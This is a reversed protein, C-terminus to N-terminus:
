DTITIRRAIFMPVKDGDEDDGWERQPALRVSLVATDAGDLAILARAGHLSTGDLWVSTRASLLAVADMGALQVAQKTLSKSVDCVEEISLPLQEGDMGDLSADLTFTHALLGPSFTPPAGEDDSAEEVSVCRKAAPQNSGSAWATPSAAATTGHSLAVAIAALLAVGLM